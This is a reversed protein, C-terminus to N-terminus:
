LDIGTAGTLKDYRKSKNKKSALRGRLRTVSQAIRNDDAVNMVKDFDDDENMDSESQSQMGGGGGGGDSEETYECLLPNIVM